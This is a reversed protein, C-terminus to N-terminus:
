GNLKITPATANIDGGASLNIPGGTTTTAPGGASTVVSGDSSTVVTGALVLVLGGVLAVTAGAGNSLTMMGPCMSLTCGGASVTFAASQNFAAVTSNVTFGASENFTANTSNFTHNGGAKSTVNGGVAFGMDGGVKVGRDGGVETTENGNVKVGRDGTVELGDNGGVKVGRNAGVSTTQNAGIAITQNAGVALTDDAGIKTTRNSAVTHSENADFTTTRDGVVHVGETGKVDHTRDHAVSNSQNGGVSTSHNARVVEDFNRQAHLFIQERNAKDELRIENFGELEETSKASRSKITSKTPDTEPNYPPTNQGNYVRGVIVPRDPDGQMFAVLVEHGVRPTYLAGYGAGAWYQSVRIWHSTPTGNKADPRQDWPFRVRVRGLKDANIVPRDGSHEEATVVATQIGAIRPKPTRIPPRFPVKAPLALFRGDLGVTPTSSRNDFGFPELDLVTGQPVLEVAWTEVRVALLDIDPRLGDGDHLVFRRGPEMTRMAGVGERLEREVDHRELRIQAAHSAPKSQTLEDGAHFEYNDFQEPDGNDASASAELLALSRHYDYDRMTVSRPRMRRADRIARVVEQDGGHGSRNSGRLTITEDAAFLPAQGPADTITLVVSDNTHEFYYSLGEAELLRSLFDFDSENYQVVYHSTTPDTIRSDDSVAWRYLGIPERFSSFDPDTDPPSPDGRLPLLGKLGSPHAPSRNELVATVIDKLTWDVFNRCRSRHRARWIPPVLLVRYLLIKATRDIEEAEALIGHVPRWREQTGIRFTAGTNILADLDVPGSEASRMLTIDYRFPESIAEIAHWRVVNFADWGEPTGLVYDAQNGRGQGQLQGQGMDHM